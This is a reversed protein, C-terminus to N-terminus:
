TDYVRVPSKVPLTYETVKVGSNVIIVQDNDTVALQLAPCKRLDLNTIKTSRIDIFVLSLLHSVEFNVISSGRLNLYKCLFLNRQDFYNFRLIKNNSFIFLNGLINGM